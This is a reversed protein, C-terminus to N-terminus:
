VLCMSDVTGFGAVVGGENSSSLKTRLLSGAYENSRISEKDFLITGYIGLESIVPEKTLKGDRVLYNETSPKADIMEMLIYSDWEKEDITKLFKPIDEKYINNGGGERQPKLVYKINNSTCSLALKKGEQGLKSDDLPYIKVFTKVLEKKTAEDDIFKNLTEEQTLLQQVKKSGALQIDVTPAKIAYSNELFERSKWCSENFYDGTTYGTRYYVVAIEKGTKKHIMRKKDDFKSYELDKLAEEFTLRISKIGYLRLLNFEVVKQDFLNTENPEVIFAIVAKEKKTESNMSQYMTFARALGRPMFVSSESVPLEGMGEYFMKMEDSSDYAGLSNLFSHMEGVKTSLGAFSVSVTNLEVQKIQESKQDILYDSRFLGLKLTQQSDCKQAMDYLKGTFDPDSHVLKKTEDMLWDSNSVQAYLQNYTKQLTKANEFVKAPVPTPFVTTPAVTAKSINDKDAMILGNSLAWQNLQPLINEEVQKTTLKPYPAHEPRKMQSIPSMM